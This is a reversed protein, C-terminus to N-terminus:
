HVSGQLVGFRQALGQLRQDLTWLRARPTLMVSALLSLDIWGCGLGFLREREIFALTEAPTASQTVSLNELYGLTTARQPPTGCAIEAIVVPHTLVRDASLAAVLDPLGYRFHHIWVSTDVLLKM